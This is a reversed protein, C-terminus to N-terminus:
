ASADDEPSTNLTDPENTAGLYLAEIVELRKVFVDTIEERYSMEDRLRKIDLGKMRELLTAAITNLQTNNNINM